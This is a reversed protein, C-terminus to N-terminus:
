GCTVVTRDTPQPTATAARSEHSREGNHPTPPQYIPLDRFATGGDAAAEMELRAIEPEIARFVLVVDFAGDEPAHAAVLEAIFSRLDLPADLHRELARAANWGTLVAGRAGVGGTEEAISALLQENDEVVHEKRREDNGV